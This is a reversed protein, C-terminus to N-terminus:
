LKCICLMWSSITMYCNISWLVCFRYLLRVYRCNICRRYSGGGRNCRNERYAKPLIIKESLRATKKKKIENLPLFLLSTQQFLFTEIKIIRRVGPQHGKARCNRTGPKISQDKYRDFLIDIKSPLFFHGRKQSRNFRDRRYDGWTIM